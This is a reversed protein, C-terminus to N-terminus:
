MSHNVHIRSVGGSSTAKLGLPWVPKNDDDDDDDCGQPWVPKYVDDDDNYIYSLTVTLQLAAATTYQLAVTHLLTLPLKHGHTDGPLQGASWVHSLARM